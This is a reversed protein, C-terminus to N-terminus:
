CPSLLLSKVISVSSAVTDTGEQVHMFARDANAGPHLERLHSKGGSVDDRVLRTEVLVTREADTDFVDNDDLLDFGLMGKAVLRPESELHTDIISLDPSPGASRWGRKGRM